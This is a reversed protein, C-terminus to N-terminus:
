LIRIHLNCFKKMSDTWLFIHSDTSLYKSVFIINQGHRPTLPPSFRQMSLKLRRVFTAPDANQKSPCLSEEPIKISTGYIIKATTAQLSGMKLNYPIGLTHHFISRAM